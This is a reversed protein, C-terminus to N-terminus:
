VKNCFDSELDGEIVGGHLFVALIAECHYAAAWPAQGKDKLTAIKHFIPAMRGMHSRADIAEKLTAIHSQRFSLSEMAHEIGTWTVVGEPRKLAIFSAHFIPAHGRPKGVKRAYREMIDAAGIYTVAMSALKRFAVDVDWYAIEEGSPEVDGAEGELAPVALVRDSCSLKQEEAFKVAAEYHVKRPRELSDGKALVGIHVHFARSRVLYWLLKTWIFVGEFGDVITADLARMATSLAALKRLAQSHGILTAIVLQHFVGCSYLHYMTFPKGSGKQYSHVASCAAMLTDVGGSEQFGPCHSLISQVFGPYEFLRLVEGALSIDNYTVRCGDRVGWGHATFLEIVRHYPIDCLSRIVHVFRWAETHIKM